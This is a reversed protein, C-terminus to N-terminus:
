TAACGNLLAQKFPDLVRLPSGPLLVRSPSYCLWYHAPATSYTRLVSTLMTYSYDPLRRRQSLSPGVRRPCLVRTGRVQEREKYHAVMMEIAMIAGWLVKLPCDDNRNDHHHAGFSECNGSCVRTSGDFRAAWPTSSRDFLQTPGVAIIYAAGFPTWGLRLSVCPPSMYTRRLFDRFAEFRTSPQGVSPSGLAAGLRDLLERSM